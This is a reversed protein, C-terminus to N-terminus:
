MPKASIPQTIGLVKVLQEGVFKLKLKDVDTLDDSAGAVGVRVKWFDNNGLKDAIQYIEAPLHASSNSVDHKGLHLNNDAFVVYFDEPIIKYHSYLKFAVDDFHEEYVRPKVVFTFPDLNTALIMYKPRIEWNRATSLPFISVVKAVAADLVIYGANSRLNAHKKGPNGYSIILRIKQSM